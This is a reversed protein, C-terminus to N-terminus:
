SSKLCIRRHFEFGQLVHAVEVESTASSFFNDVREWYTSYLINLISINFLYLRFDNIESFSFYSLVNLSM